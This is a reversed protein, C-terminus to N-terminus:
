RAWVRLPGIAEFGVGLLADLDEGHEYGVIWSNPHRAIAAAAVDALAGFANSLSVVEVNAITTRHLIAGDTYSASDARGLITVGPARRLGNPLVDDPGGWARRWAAFPFKERVVEFGAVERPTADPPHAIWTADFLVTYGQDALDLTAFSDKVSAGPGDAIRTLVDVENVTPDLTIADPYLPPTRHPSSWLRGDAVPALRHVRCVTDCWAANARM